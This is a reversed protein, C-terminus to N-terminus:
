MKSTHYSAKDPYNEKLWEVFEVVKYFDDVFTRPDTLNLCLLSRNLTAKRRIFPSASVTAARCVQRCIKASIAICYAIDLLLGISALKMTGNRWKASQSNGALRNLDVRARSFATRYDTLTHCLSEFLLSWFHLSGLLKSLFVKPTVADRALSKQPM